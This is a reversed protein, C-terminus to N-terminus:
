SLHIHAQALAADGERHSVMIIQRGSEALMRSFAMAHTDDMQSAPEDLLLAGFSDPLLTDFALQVAVSMISKQAGSAADLPVTFGDEVFEFTGSDTRLVRQIAGGTCAASFDSAVSMIQQWLQAMFRDRNSKLYKGLRQATDMETTLEAIRKEKKEAREISELTHERNNELRSMEFRVKNLEEKNTDLAHQGHTVMASLESTDILEAPTGTSSLEQDAEALDQRSKTLEREARDLLSKASNADVMAQRAEALEPETPNKLDTFLSGLEVLEKDINDIGAKRNEISTELVEATHSLERHRRDNELAARYNENQEVHFAKAQGLVGTATELEARVGDADFNDYPRNCARCIGTQLLDDLRNVEAQWQHQIQQASVAKAHLDDLDQVKVKALEARVAELRSLEERLSQEASARSAELTAETNAAQMVRQRAALLDSHRVTAPGALSAKDKYAPIEKELKEIVQLSTQRKTLAVQHDQQAKTARLNHENAEQFRRSAESLVETSAKIAEELTVEKSRFDKLQNDVATLATKLHETSHVPGLESLKASATSAIRSARLIVENVLKAGSVHEVIRHLEEAGLTLLAETEGQRAYKLRMFYRQPTGILEELATNVASKSSALMEDGEFLKAGNHTREIRYRKGGHHFVATVSMSSAPQERRVVLKSGGPVASVGFFAFLAAHLVSSKGKYNAGTFITLGDPLVVDLAEHSKFNRIKLSELM